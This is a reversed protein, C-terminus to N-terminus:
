PMRRWLAGRAPKGTQFYAVADHGDLALKSRFESFIQPKAPSQARVLDHQLIFAATAALGLLLLAERWTPRVM